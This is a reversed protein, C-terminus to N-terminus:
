ERSSTAWNKGALKDPNIEVYSVLDATEMYTWDIKFNGLELKASERTTHCLTCLYKFGSGQLGGDSRDLKEDIMSNYIKLRHLRTSNATYIKMVQGQMLNREFEIDRLLEAATSPSNGDGIAELIPRNVHVANSKQEEFVTIRTGDKKVVESQLVAFAARFAEDPLYTDSSGKHISIDGMGDAGDKITTQLILEPDDLSFGHQALGETIDKDLEELTKAVAERYNWMVGVCNSETFEQVIAPGGIVQPEFMNSIHTM